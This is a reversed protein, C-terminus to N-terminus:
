DEDEEGFAERWEAETVGNILFERDEVSLHPAVDQILGGEEWEKIQSETIDIERTHLVRTLISRKQIKM